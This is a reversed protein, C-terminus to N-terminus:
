WSPVAPNITFQNDVLMQWTVTYQVTTPNILGLTTWQVKNWPISVNVTFSQGKEGQYPQTSSSSPVFAFTVTVDSSALQSLGAGLLYDYVTQQVNPTGTSVNIQVQTGNSLVTFGQAALRAGERAGNAVIQKVQIYRGIEWICILLPVVFVVTVFAMEVAAVGSNRKRKNRLLM